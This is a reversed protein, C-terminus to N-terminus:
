PGSEVRTVNIVYVIDALEPQALDIRWESSVLSYQQPYQWPMTGPPTVITGEIRICVDVGHVVMVGRNSSDTTLVGDKAAQPRGKYMVRMIKDSQLVNFRSECGSLLLAAWVLSLLVIRQMM